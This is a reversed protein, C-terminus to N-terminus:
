VPKKIAALIALSWKCVIAVVECLAIVQSSSFVTPLSGRPMRAPPLESSLREPPSAAAQLTHFPLHGAAQISTPHVSTWNGLITPPCLLLSGKQGVSSHCPSALSPPLSNLTLRHAFVFHSGVSCARPPSFLNPTFFFLSDSM